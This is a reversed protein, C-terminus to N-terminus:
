NKISDNSVTELINKLNKYLDAKSGNNQVFFDTYDKLKDILLVKIEYNDRKNIEELSLSRIRREMLRKFRVVKDAEIFIVFINSFCNKFIKYEVLSRMGEIVVTNHTKLKRVAQNIVQRAFIGDGYKERLKIRAM